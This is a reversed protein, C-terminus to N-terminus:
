ENNDVRVSAANVAIQGGTNGTVTNSHILADSNGIGVDGNDVSVSHVVVGGIASVGDTGNNRAICTDIISDTADFGHFTNDVATCRLFHSGGGDSQFGHTRNDSAICDTARSSHGLYFGSGAGPGALGNRLANVNEVRSYPCGSLDVGVQWFDRVTGNRIVAGNKGAECVIGKNSGVELNGRVTFGNLDLTVQNARIEIGHAGGFAAIDAMLYYSGPQDIVVPTITVFDNDLGGRPEVEVLTKMTPAPPGPPDLEGAYVGFLCAASCLFWCVFCSALIRM